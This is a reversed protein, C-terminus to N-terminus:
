NGAEANGTRAEAGAGAATPWGKEARTTFPRMYSCNAGKGRGLEAVGPVVM